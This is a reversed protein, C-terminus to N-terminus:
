CWKALMASYYKRCPEIITPQSGVSHSLGVTVEDFATVEGRQCSVDLAYGPATGFVLQGELVSRAFYSMESTNLLMAHIARLPRETIHLAASVPVMHGVANVEVSLLHRIQVM